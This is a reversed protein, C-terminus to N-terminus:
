SAWHSPAPDRLKPLLSSEFGALVWAPAEPLEGEWGGLYEIVETPTVIGKPNILFRVRIWAVACIEGKVTFRQEVFLAESDYGNIKTEIHFRQWPMLSKRFTIHEAVVVPYWNRKKLKQWAGARLMWDLRGLDALSLFKGNNMHAFIDLDTPWVRFPRRAVASIKLQGRKRWSFQAWLLRFWLNM